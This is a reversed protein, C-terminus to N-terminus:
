LVAAKLSRGRTPVEQRLLVRTGRPVTRYMVRLVRGRADLVGVVIPVWARADGRVRVAIYPRGGRPRYLRKSITGRRVAPRPTVAAQPAAPPRPAADPEAARPAPPAPSPAPTATPTAAPPTYAVSGLPSAPGAFTAIAGGAVSGGIAGRVADNTFQLVLERTPTASSLVAGDNTLLGDPHVLSFGAAVATAPDIEEDFRFTALGDTGNLGIDLLDPGDTFGPMMSTARVAALGRSSPASITQSVTCGGDDVVRVIKADSRRAPMAFAVRITREDEAPRGLTVGTHEAGDELVARCNAVTATTAAVKTDYVLDYVGPLGAVPTASVLDPLETAGGTVDQSNPLEQTRSRVTGALVVVRAADTTSFGAPFAITVNRGAVFPTVAPDGAVLAGSATIFAFRTPDIAALTSLPRSYTFTITNLTLDARTALLQPGTTQGARPTLYSGDLPASGPTSVRGALDQAASGAATVLTFGAVDPAGAFTLVVCSPSTADVRAGTPALAAAAAYGRLAFSAAVPTQLHADFCARVAPPSESGDSLVRASVLDPGSTVVPPAAALAAPSAVAAAAGTLALIEIASRM